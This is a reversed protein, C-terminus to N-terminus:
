RMLGRTMGGMWTDDLLDRTVCGSSSLVEEDDEFILFGTEMETEGLNCCGPSSYEELKVSMAEPVFLMM